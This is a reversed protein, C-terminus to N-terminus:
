LILVTYCQKEPPSHVPSMIAIVLGTATSWLGLFRTVANNTSKRKPTFAPQKAEEIEGVRDLRLAIQAIRTNLTPRHWPATRQESGLLGGTRKVFNLISRVPVQLLRGVLQDGGSSLVAGFACVGVAVLVLICDGELNEQKKGEIMVSVRQDNVDAKVLKTNTFIKIGQKALSKKM